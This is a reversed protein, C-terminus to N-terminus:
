IICFYLNIKLAKSSVKMTWLLFWKDGLELFGKYHDTILRLRRFLQGDILRRQIYVYPLNEMRRNIRTGGTRRTHMVQMQTLRYLANQNILYGMFLANFFLVCFWILWILLITRIPMPTIVIDDDTLVPDYAILNIELVQSTEPIGYQADGYVTCEIKQVGPPCIPDFKMIGDKQNSAPCFNGYTYNKM